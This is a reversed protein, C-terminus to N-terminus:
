GNYQTPQEVSDGNSFKAAALCMPAVDNKHKLSNRSATFPV